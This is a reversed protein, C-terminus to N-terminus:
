FNFAFLFYRFTVANIYQSPHLQKASVLNRYYSHPMSMGHCLRSKLFSCIYVGEMKERWLIKFQKEVQHTKIYNPRCKANFYCKHILDNEEKKGRRM